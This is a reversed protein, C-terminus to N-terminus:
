RNSKEMIATLHSIHNDRFETLRSHVIEDSIEDLVRNYTHVTDIDVQALEKLKKLLDNHDM